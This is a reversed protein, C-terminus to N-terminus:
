ASTKQPKWAKHEIQAPIPPAAAELEVLRDRLWEFWEGITARGSAKREARFHNGLKRWSLIIPGSFFDSVVDLGVEGRFVLIGLSEWTTTM